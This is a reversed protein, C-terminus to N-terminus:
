IFLKVTSVLSVSQDIFVILEQAAHYLEPGTITEVDSFVKRLNSHLRTVRSDIEELKNAAAIDLKGEAILDSVILKVRVYSDISAIYNDKLEIYTSFDDLDLNLLSTRLKGWDLFADEIVAQDYESLSDLNSNAIEVAEPYTEMLYTKDKNILFSGKVVDLGTTCALLGFMMCLCM